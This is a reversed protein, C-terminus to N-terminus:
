CRCRCHAPPWSSPWRPRRGCHGLLLPLTVRRFAEAPGCGLLRAADELEAIDPRIAFLTYALLYPLGFIVFFLVLWQVTFALPVPPGSLHLSLQLSRNLWGANGCVVLFALGAPFGHLLLPARVLPVLRERPDLRWSFIFLTGAVLVLLSSGLAVAYTRLLAARLSDSAVIALLNQAATPSGLAAAVLAGLLGLLSLGALSWVLWGAADAV